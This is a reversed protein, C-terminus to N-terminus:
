GLWARAAACVRSDREAIRRTPTSAARAVRMTPRRLARQPARARARRARVNSAAPWKFSLVEPMDDGHEWIYEAHEKLKSELEAILPADNTTRRLVDLALHWRSMENVVTMDYPTTTSGEEIYGHVSFRASDPREHVLGPVLTPYGHFAMVVPVGAGGFLAEFQEAPLGRPHLHPVRLRLLELVNVFRLRVAPAKERLWAAAALAELTPVDGASALVVDPGRGAGGGGLSPSSAWAWESIGAAAHAEAAAPELWQPMMHKGAVIANIRHMSRLCAATTALLTNADAPLFINAVSGKKSALQDLFGPAQHTYGNHDQRWTHSTLIYNLSPYPRRWELEATAKLWKAHQNMMSDVVQTFAEYTPFLGHRGTLTYGELWGQCCHESLIEMVRGDASMNADGPAGEWMAVRGTAEFVSALRNSTIEDPCMIRFNKAAENRRFTDRLLPGLASTCEAEVAGPAPVPLMYERPPPVDLPVVLEGGNAHPTASMRLTGSPTLARLEAIPAGTRPEFLEAPRYSQLWGELIQLHAGGQKCKAAPVQHARFTGEVLVGDIERPGTWGKPTRLVIMPWRPRVAEAAPRARAAHWIAHVRTVCHDLASAMLQHMTAPDDGEVFVPEHGYGILLSELEARPLRSLLTAGGIKAGNLHLVPLVAGDRAPNVFKTSHWSAACPGTQARASPAPPPSRPCARAPRAHADAQAAPAHCPRAPPRCPRARPRRRHRATPARSAAWVLPPARCHACVEAEGDGVVCCVILEPNDLAAGYAHLLCYGLEGGEHLSGPCDPSVHSPIGRPWSFQKFLHCLGDYDQTIKPYRETYSGELYANAVIGPGGHGPGCVLLMQASRATIISRALRPARCARPGSATLPATSAQWRTRVPAPPSPCSDGGVRACNQLREHRARGGATLQVCRNVHAYVLNLGPCTGWHGLLRTKIHEPKLPERLLPNARLYIQGVTLYNAARWFADILRLQEASLPGVTTM